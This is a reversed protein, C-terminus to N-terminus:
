GVALSLINYANQSEDCCVGCGVGWVVCRVSCVICWVGCVVCWEGCM